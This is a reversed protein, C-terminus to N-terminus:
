TAAHVTIYYWANETLTEDIDVITLSVNYVGPVTYVHTVTQGTQAAQTSTNGDGFNWEAALYPPTGGTTQNTFIVTEGVQVELKDASFHPNLKEPPPKATFHATISKDTNMTITTSAADVDVITTVDGSWNAFEYGDDPSAVLDVVAGMDYTSLGERPVAVSGGATSSIILNYKIPAIREFMATIHYNGRTVSITTTASNVDAISALDGLWKVFRYGSDPTAVLDVDMCFRYSFVGEGPATVSGGETSSITVVYSPAGQCGVMGTILAAAIVFMGIRVVRRHRGVSLITRM